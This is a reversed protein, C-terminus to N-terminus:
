QIWSVTLEFAEEETDSTWSISGSESKTIVLRPQFRKGGSTIHFAVALSSGRVRPTFALTGVDDIDLRGESGMNVSVEPNAVPSGNKQIQFQLRISEQAVAPSIASFLFAVVVLCTLRM